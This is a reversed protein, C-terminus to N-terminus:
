FIYRIEVFLKPHVEYSGESRSLDAVYYNPVIESSPPPRATIVNMSSM